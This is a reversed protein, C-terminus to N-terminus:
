ISLTLGKRIHEIKVFGDDRWPLNYRRVDHRCLKCIAKETSRWCKEEANSVWERGRATVPVIRGTTAFQEDPSVILPLEAQARQPPWHPAVPKPLPPAPANGGAGVVDRYLLPPPKQGPVHKVGVGTGELIPEGADTRPPM